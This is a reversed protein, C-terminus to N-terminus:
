SGVRVGAALLAARVAREIVAEIDVQATAKMQDLLDRMVTTQERVAAALDGDATKADGFSPPPPLAKGRAAAEAQLYPVVRRWIPGSVNASLREAHRYTSDKYGLAHAVQEQSLDSANRAKVLWDSLPGREDPTKVSAVIGRKGVDM